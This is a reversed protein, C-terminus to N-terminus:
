VFVLDYSPPDCPYLYSGRPGEVYKAVQFLQGRDSKEHCPIDCYLCMVLLVPITTLLMFTGM